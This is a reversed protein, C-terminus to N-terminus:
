SISTWLKAYKLVYDRVKRKYENLNNKYLNAATVDLPDDPNPDDLLSSISLLIKEVTLAPSWRGEKIIDWCIEENKINPHFVKTKMKIKPPDYPYNETFIIQLKFFGNKFPSDENSNSIIAEWTLFNNNDIPGASIGFVPNESFTKLETRLRQNDINTQSNEM